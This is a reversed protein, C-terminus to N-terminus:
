AQREHGARYRIFVDMQEARFLRPWPRSRASLHGPAGKLIGNEYHGLIFGYIFQAVRCHHCRAIHEELARSLEASGDGDICCSMNALVEKCDMTDM